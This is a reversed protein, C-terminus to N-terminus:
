KSLFLNFVERLDEPPRKMAKAITVGDDGKRFHRGLFEMFIADLVDAGPAFRLLEEGTLCSVANEAESWWSAIAQRLDSHDPVQELIAQTMQALDVHGRVLRKRLDHGMLRVLPVRQAVRNTVITHRLDEAARELASMVELPTVLAASDGSSCLVEALTDPDLLYNELERRNLVHVVASANLRDLLDQPLEDRDRIYLVSRKLRDAGSIWASLLAAHRANDGGGGHLIAVRPDRMIEPFWAVLVDEDTPGEVILVREASLVDSLRVGLSNLLLIPQVDVSEVRSVGRERSVLWLCDGTPSWDLMVTSHTAIVIQRDISWSQLFGLLARQAAPHL